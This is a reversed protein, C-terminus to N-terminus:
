WSGLVRGTWLFWFCQLAIMQSYSLFLLLFPRKHARYSSLYFVSVHSIILTHESEGSMGSSSTIRGRKYIALAPVALGAAKEQTLTLHTSYKQPACIQKACLCRASIDHHTSRTNSIYNQRYDAEGSNGGKVILTLQLIEPTNMSSREYLLSCQTYVRLGWAGLSAIDCELVVRLLNRNGAEQWSVASYGNLRVMWLGIEPLIIQIVQIILPKRIQRVELTGKRRIKIDTMHSLTHMCTHRHM